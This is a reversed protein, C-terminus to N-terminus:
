VLDARYFAAQRARKGPLRVDCIGPEAITTVGAPARQCCAAGEQSCLASGSNRPAGCAGPSVGVWGM